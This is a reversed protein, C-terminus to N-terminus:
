KAFKYSEASALNPFIGWAAVDFYPTDGKNVPTPTGKTNAGFPYLHVQKTHDINEPFNTVHLYIEQWENNGILEETSSATPYYGTIKTGDKEYLHYVNTGAYGTVNSRILMKIVIQSDVVPIAPLSYCDLHVTNTGGEVFTFHTYTTGDSDTKIESAMTAKPIDAYIKTGHEKVTRVYYPDMVEGKDAAAEELVDNVWDKKDDASVPVTKEYTFGFEYPPIYDVFYVEAETDGLIRTISNEASLTNYAYVGKANTFLRNGIGQIYVNGSYVPAKSADSTETQSLEYVARDLVNNEIRFNSFLNAQKGQDSTGSRIHRQTEVNYRTSGFGYGARRMLNGTFLVNEGEHVIDTVNTNFFYEISYQCETMVNNSYVINDMRLDKSQGGVQHTVAADYVQYFYCNDVVYNDCGGYIEIANGYRIPRGTTGDYGQMNGGIWEFTCNTVKLNKLTSAGIGFSCFKFAINDVTVGNNGGVNIMAGRTVFDVSDFVKAPNGNDCRLYVPGKASSADAVTGNIISNAQHFFEFNRDLEKTYDFKKNRDSFVLFEKKSSYPTEKYAYVEGGNFVITGIDLLGMDKYKWILAGTTKDEYALAWNDPDSAEIVTGNLVPKEGEGYASYTVGAKAAIREYWTGGRELLVVDGSVAKKNAEAFSKMATAETLGDNSDNGNPSVYIKKGTIDSYDTNPTSRIEAIRKAELEDLEAVKAYGAATNYLVDMGVKKELEAIPDVKVSAWVGASETHEVTAEAIDAFAWHTYDVDLFLISIDPLLQEAKKSTGRARGIVTVVEARTITNDPKFSFTGDGNDYGNILGASAAAKISVYKPHAENVDSFSVATGKDEALGTLYVLEAFEARTIAKDPEFNGSYSKLLGKEQCYGIYKSYWADAAVDAFTATGSVNEDGGAVIRSVTTCAEARTMTGSPKFTGDDYGKMYATHNEFEEPKETFFMINSLYMVDTPELTALTSDGYPYIHLQRLYYDNADPNLKAHGESLDFLAIKWEGAVLPENKFAGSYISSTFINGNKMAGIVPVVSKPNPSEYYYEIGAWSYLSMDVEAGLYHFGDISLTKTDTCTPDPIIKLVSKGDLETVELTCTKRGNVTGNQYEAISLSISKSADNEIDDNHVQIQKEETVQAIITEAEAIQLAEDSIEQTNQACANTATLLLSALITAILRKSKM